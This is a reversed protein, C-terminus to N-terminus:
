TQPSGQPPCTEVPPSLSKALLDRRDSRDSGIFIALKLIL